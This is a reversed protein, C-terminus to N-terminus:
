GKLFSLALVLNERLFHIHQGGLISLQQGLCFLQRHVLLVVLQVTLQLIVILRENGGSAAQTHSRGVFRLSEHNGVLLNLRRHGRRLALLRRPLLRAIEAVVLDAGQVGPDGLGVLGNSQQVCGLQFLELALAIGVLLIEPVALGPRCLSLGGKGGRLRLDFGGSVIQVAAFRAVDGLTLLQSLSPRLKGALDIGVLLEQELHVASQGLRIRVPPLLLEVNLLSNSGVLGHLFLLVSRGCLVAGFVARSAAAVRQHGGVLVGLRLAHVVFIGSLIRLRLQRRQLQGSGGELFIFISQLLCMGGASVTSAEAVDHQATIIITEDFNRLTTREVVDGEGRGRLEDIRRLHFRHGIVTVELRNTLAAFGVCLGLRVVGEVSVVRARRLQEKLEATAPGRSQQCHGLLERRILGLLRLLKHRRNQDGTVDRLRGTSGGRTFHLCGSRKVGGARVSRHRVVSQAAFGQKLRCHQM